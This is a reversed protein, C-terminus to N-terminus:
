TYKIPRISAHLVCLLLTGVGPQIDVLHHIGHIIINVLEDRLEDGCSFGGSGGWKRGTGM